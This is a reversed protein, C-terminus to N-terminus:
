YSKKLWMDIYAKQQEPTQYKLFEQDNILTDNIYAKPVKYEELFSQYKSYYKKNNTINDSQMRIPMKCIDTLRKSWNKIDSYHLKVIILNKHRQYLYKRHFDYSVTQPIHLRKYVENIIHMEEIHYLYENNFVDILEKTSMSLFNPIKQEGNNFFSSIKREIPTRYADLILLKKNKSSEIITEFFGKYGFQNKFCTPNHAKITKFAMRNFTKKLSSSGCKGGAIVFVDIDNM